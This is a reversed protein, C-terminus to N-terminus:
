AKFTQQNWRGFLEPQGQSLCDDGGRQPLSEVLMAKESANAGGALRWAEGINTCVLGLVVYPINLVIKKKVKSNM